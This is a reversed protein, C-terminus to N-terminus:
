PRVKQLVTLVFEATVNGMGDIISQRESAKAAWYFPTMKLLNERAKVDALTMQLVLPKKTVLAFGEPVQDSQEHMLVTDYLNKKLELLHSPGPTVTLWLGDAKLVRGIEGKDAPAFVQLLVDVSDDRKPLNFSSAVAFNLSTYKKSAKAAATKSIDSGTSATEIGSQGLFEAVKHLYYGEGCGADHLDIQQSKVNESILQAIRQALPLYYEQDLFERRANIMLKSDGPLASHKQNALLLNVYGEKAVDFCHQNDCRWQQRNFHLPQACAPCSWM